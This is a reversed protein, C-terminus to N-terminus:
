DDIKIISEFNYFFRESPKKKRNIHLFNYLGGKSLQNFVNYFFKEDYRGISNEEAVKKIESKPQSAFIILHESNQRIQGPVSKYYQTLLFTQIYLKRSFFYVDQLIKSRMFKKNSVADDIIFLIKDMNDLGKKKRQEEFIQEVKKKFDKTNVNEIFQVKAKKNYIEILENIEEFYANPSWLYIQDYFGKLFKESTLLSVLLNTKGSNTSGILLARNPFSPIIGYANNKPPKKVNKLLKSVDDIKYDNM